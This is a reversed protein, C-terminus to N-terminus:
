LLVVKNRVFMAAVYENFKEVIIKHGCLPRKFDPM